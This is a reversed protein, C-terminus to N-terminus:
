VRMKLPADNLLRSDIIEWWAEQEIRKQEWDPIKSLASVATRYEGWAAESEFSVYHEVCHVDNGITRTYWRRNKSMELTEYFWADRETVWQWFATMDKRAKLTPRFLYMLHLM